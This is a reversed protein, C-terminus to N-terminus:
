PAIGKKGGTFRGIIRINIVPKQPYNTKLNLYGRYDESPGPLNTIRIKFRKGKEVEELDYVVKGELNFPGPELTLPKELGARVEVTLSSMRKEKAYFSVYPPFLYIPAKVFALVTLTFEPMGPDNTYVRASKFLAGEYNKTRLTLGIKGKGGPPISREFSAM